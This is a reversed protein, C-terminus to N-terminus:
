AIRECLVYTESAAGFKRLEHVPALGCLKAWKADQGPRAIAEIRQLGARELMARAFRTLALHDAGIGHALVAWAVGQVGEFTESIGICAVIRGAADRFTWAEPMEALAEAEEHSPTADVGLTLVQSAQREICALDIPALRRVSLM